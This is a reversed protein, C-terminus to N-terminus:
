VVTMLEDGATVAGVNAVKISVFDDSNTILVPTHLQFGGAQVQRWHGGSYVAAAPRRRNM